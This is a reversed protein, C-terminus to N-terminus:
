YKPLLSVSGRHWAIMAMTRSIMVTTKPQKTIRFKPRPSFFCLSYRKMTFISMEVNDRQWIPNIYKGDNRKKVTAFFLVPRFRPFVCCIWRPGIAVWGFRILMSYVDVWLSEEGNHQTTEGRERVGVRARQLCVSKYVNSDTNNNVMMWRVVIVVTAIEGM